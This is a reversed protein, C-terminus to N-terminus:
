DDQWFCMDILKMPPYEIVSSNNRNKKTNLLLKNYRYLTFLEKISEKNFSKTLGLKELKKKIRTDYGLICGFTGMMIKTLLTETPNNPRYCAKIEQSANFILNIIHNDTKENNYDILWLEDYEPKLITEVAFKHIKYDKFYLFSSGRLMGWSALYFALNLCLLDIDDDSLDSIKHGNKLMNWHTKQFINYCHEWSINSNHIDDNITKYFKDINNILTSINYNPKSTVM